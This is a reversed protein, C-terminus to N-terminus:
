VRSHLSPHDLDEVGWCKLVLVPFICGCECSGFFQRVKEHADTSISGHLRPLRVFVTARFLSSLTHQAPFGRSLALPVLFLCTEAAAVVHFLFLFCYCVRGHKSLSKLRRSPPHGPSFSSTLPPLDLPVASAIHFPSQFYNKV